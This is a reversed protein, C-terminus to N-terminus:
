AGRKKKLLYFALLAGGGVMAVNAWKVDGKADTFFGENQKRALRDARAQAAAQAAVIKAQSAAVKSALYDKALTGASKAADSWSDFSLTPGQQTTGLMHHGGVGRHYARPATLDREPPEDGVRYGRMIPDVPVWGRKTKVSVYVHTWEGPRSRDSAITVFRTQVGVAGLLAAVLISVDDCDMPEVGHERIQEVIHRPKKILEAGLPDFTYRMGARAWELIAEITAIEDREPVFRVIEQAQQIVLPDESGERALRSMEALTVRNGANGGPITRKTAIWSGALM